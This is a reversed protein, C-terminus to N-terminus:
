NTKKLVKWKPTLFSKLIVFMIKFGDKFARLKKGESYSRPQYKSVTESVKFNLKAFKCILEFEFDFGNSNIYIRNFLERRYVKTAGAADTLNLNFLINILKTLIIVGYLNKKYLFNPNIELLRSGIVLDYNNNIVNKICSNLDEIEYEDIDFICLIDGKAEDSAKKISGGKGLNRDNFIIKVNNIKNEFNEKLFEKTGDNSNNDVLIIEEPQILYNIKSLSNLLNKKILNIENFYCCIISIKM